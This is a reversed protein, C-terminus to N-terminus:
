QHDHEDDATLAALEDFERQLAALHEQRAASQEAALLLAIDDLPEHPPGPKDDAPVDALAAAEENAQLQANFAALSRASLEAPKKPAAIM